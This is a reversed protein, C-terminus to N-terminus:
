DQREYHKIEACFAAQVDTLGLNPQIARQEYQEVMAPSCNAYNNFQILQRLLAAVLKRPTQTNQEKHNLYLCLVPVNQPTFHKRLDKVALSSLM